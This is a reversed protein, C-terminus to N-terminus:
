APPGGAAVLAVFAVVDDRSQCTVPVLPNDAGYPCFLNHPRQTLGSSCALWDQWDFQILFDKKYGSLANTWFNPDSCKLNTFFTSLIIKFLDGFVSENRNDLSGGVSLDM